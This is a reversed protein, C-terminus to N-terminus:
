RSRSRKKESKRDDKRHREKEKEKATRKSDCNDSLEASKNRSAVDEDESAWRGGMIAEKIDPDLQRGTSHDKHEGTKDGPQNRTGAVEDNPIVGAVTTPGGGYEDSGGGGYEDVAPLKGGVDETGGGGYENSHGGKKTRGGGADSSAEQRTSGSDDEDSMEMNVNEYNDERDGNPKFSMGPLLSGLVFPM